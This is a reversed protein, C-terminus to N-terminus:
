ISLLREAQVSEADVGDLAREGFELRDLFLTASLLDASAKPSVNMARLGADLRRLCRRGADTAHGGANLVARAGAQAADLAARGGQHLLGTDELGSMIAMLADLRADDESIGRARGGRLAPLGIRIVHPFARQAEGRAGAAGFRRRARDGPTLLDPAFRDPMLAIAAAGAVVSGASRDHQRRAASAVLLGLAWIVGRHTSAGNTAAPTRKEMDRGIRGLAERLRESPREVSASAAATALFGEKLSLAARRAHTLDLSADAGSVRRDVLAPKPTLEITSVLASVSLSALELLWPSM